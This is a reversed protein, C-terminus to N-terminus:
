LVTISPDNDAPAAAAARDETLESFCVLFLFFILLIFLTIIHRGRNITNM